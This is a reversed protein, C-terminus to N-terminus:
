GWFSVLLNGWVNELFGLCVISFGDRFNCLHGLDALQTLTFTSYYLWEGSIFCLSLLLMWPLQSIATLFLASVGLWSANRKHLLPNKFQRWFVLLRSTHKRLFSCPLGHIRLIQKFTTLMKCQPSHFCTWDFSPGLLSSHLFHYLLFSWLTFWFKLSLFSLFLLFLNFKKTAFTSVLIFLFIPDLNILSYLSFLLAFCLSLVTSVSSHLRVRRRKLGEKEKERKIRSHKVLGSLSLFLSFTHSHSLPWSAVPM